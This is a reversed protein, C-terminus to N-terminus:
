TCILTPLSGWTKRSTHKATRGTPTLLRRSDTSGRVSLDRDVSHHPTMVIECSVLTDFDLMAM